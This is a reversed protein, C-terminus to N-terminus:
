KRVTPFLFYSGKDGLKREFNENERFFWLAQTASPTAM